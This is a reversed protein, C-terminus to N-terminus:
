CRKVSTKTTPQTTSRQPVPLPGEAYHVHIFAIAAATSVAAWDIIEVSDIARTKAGFWRQRLLWEPLAQRLSELEPRTTLMEMSTMRM